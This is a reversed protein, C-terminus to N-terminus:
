GQTRTEGARMAPQAHPASPQARREREQKKGIRGLIAVASATERQFETKDLQTGVAPPAWQLKMAREFEAILSAEMSQGMSYAWGCIVLASIAAGAARKWLNSRVVHQRLLSVIGDAILTTSESPHSQEFISIMEEGFQERFRQPHLRVLLRYLSRNM